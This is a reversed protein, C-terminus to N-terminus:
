DDELLEDFVSEASEVRGSVIDEQSKMMQEILAPNSLVTITEMIAKWEDMSVVVAEPTDNRSVVFRQGLESCGKLYDSLNNRFQSYSVTEMGVAM